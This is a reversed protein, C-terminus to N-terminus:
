QHLVYFEEFLSEFDTSIRREESLKYGKESEEEFFAASINSTNFDFPSIISSVSMIIAEIQIIFLSGKNVLFVLCLLILTKIQCFLYFSKSLSM